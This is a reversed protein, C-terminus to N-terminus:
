ARSARAPAYTSPKGLRVWCPGCLEVGPETAYENGCHLCTMTQMSAKTVLQPRVARYNSEIRNSLALLADGQDAGLAALGSSAELLKVQTSQMGKITAVLLELTAVEPDVSM